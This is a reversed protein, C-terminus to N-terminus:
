PGLQVDAEGTVPNYTALFIKILALDVTGVSDDVNPNTPNGFLIVGDSGNYDTIVAEQVFTFDTLELISSDYVPVVMVALIGDFDALTVDVTVTSVASVYGNGNLSVTVSGLYDM